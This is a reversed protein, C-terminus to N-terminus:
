IIVPQIQEEKLAAEMADMYAQVSPLSTKPFLKEANIKDYFEESTIDKLEELYNEQDFSVNFPVFTVNNEAFVSAPIDCSTDAIIKYKNM